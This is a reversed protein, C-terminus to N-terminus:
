ETTEPSPGRDEEKWLVHRDTKRQTRFYALNMAGEFKCKRCKIRIVGRRDATAGILPFGCVPCRVTTKEGAEYELRSLELKRRVEEDPPGYRPGGKAKGKAM